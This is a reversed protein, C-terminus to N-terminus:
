DNARDAEEHRGVNGRRLDVIQRRVEEDSLFGDAAVKDYHVMEERPRMLKESPQGQMASEGILLMDYVMMHDPINLLSKVLGGVKPYKTASVPLAALGLGHAALLMYLFVNSMSSEFISEGKQRSYRAAMPLGVIRRTDGLLLIFVPALPTRFKGGADPTWPSGQWEERTAELPFFDSLRYEDVIDKIATRLELDKIVVFECPQMNFGTPAWRALEIVKDVVDDAIPDPMIARITRRGEVFELLSEYDVTAEGPGHHRDPAVGSCGAPCSGVVL